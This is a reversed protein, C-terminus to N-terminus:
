TQEMIMCLKKIERQGQTYHFDDCQEHMSTKRFLTMEMDELGPNIMM